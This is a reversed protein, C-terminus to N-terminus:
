FEYVARLIVDNRPAANNSANGVLKNDYVNLIKIIRSESDTATGASYRPIDCYYSAGNWTGGTWNRNPIMTTCFDTNNVTSTDPDYDSWLLMWGHECQSLKKSPTATHGETMYYSGTWLPKRKADHITKWGKYTNAGALYNSYISGDAGFAYVWGITTSTKHIFFRYSETTEPNGTTGAIAYITHFGQGMNSIETLVNKGSGSGYSYEVGGTSNTFAPSAGVEAYTPPNSTTYYKSWSGWANDGIKTRVYTEFDNSGASGHRFWLQKITTNGQKWPIVLLWGNVNGSPANTPTYSQAFTYFGADTYNNLDEGAVTISTPYHKHNNDSKANLLSQLNDINSVVHNHSDDAVTAAISVNGSGDFSTSGTVDGTLSITKASSLKTATASNGTCTTATTASGASNAYGVQGGISSTYTATISDVYVGSNALALTSHSDGSVVIVEMTDWTNIPKYYLDFVGNSVKVAFVTKEYKNENLTLWKMTCSTTTNDAGNRIYLHLLGNAGASGETPNFMLYGMFGSYGNPLTITGFKIYKGANASQSSTIKVRKSITTATGANGSVTTQLPHIHDERAVRAVTGVTATGNAKPASTAWTVHTGHSSAAKGDIQTQLNSKTNNLETKTAYTNVINQGNGDQTSKTASTANGSLSGVFKSAVMSGGSTDVTLTTGATYGSPITAGSTFTTYKTVTCGLLPIFNCYMTQNTGSAISNATDYIEIYVNNANSDTVGRIQFTSYKNANLQTIYVTSSHSANIAFTANGVVNGRTFGISLIGSCGVVGTNAKILCIRSWTQGQTIASWSIMDEKGNLTTQLNDINAITHNHSDDNVTIVGSSITVDGGSKVFGLSSGAASHTHSTSSKGNLQTQINSTVGDVYNLETTTATVGDLKNLESVTVTIGLNTLAGAATTAGTGGKAIPVTPLRDSSLTGSTINSASHNHSSSAKGDLQTQIGSTVGKVYNLETASATLDSINAVKHTHSSAAAGIDTPTPKHATTYVQAWDSWKADAVDRKSRVHVPAHSGSTGSWGILLQGDGQGKLNLINGYNQPYGNNYAQSMSVGSVSPRTTETEATTNGRSVVSNHTHNSDSKNNLTSQLNTVDSIAHTHSKNAKGAAVTELADIADANDDILDGLEKLTDYAGGAGNLLDNKVANAANDAYTKAESLKNTADTKKEYTSAIVNGSGDKTASAVSQSGINASTIITNGTDKWGSEIIPNDYSISNYVEENLIVKKNSDYIDLAFIDFSTEGAFTVNHAEADSTKVELGGYTIGNYIFTCPKFISFGSSCLYRVRVQNTAGHSSSMSVIAMVPAYLGNSRAFTLQGSSYSNNANGCSSNTPAKCLAIVSTRYSTTQCQGTLSVRKAKKNNVTSTITDLQTQLNDTVGDLSNIESTSVTVGDLKNIEAATSTIGFSGLTYTTDKASITVKDNTADPTLTINNGAVFTLTDTKIDAAITVDGIKVNSFANQNPEANSPAHATQSHTYATNWNAREASTIHSTANNTHSDLSTQSARSSDTPHRHDSRAVTSASGVSATGDMVPNTTSYTVHTGHSSNAKGDLTSQLNTIESINHTHKKDSKENMETKTAFLNKLNDLFKTLTNLSIYKKTAM